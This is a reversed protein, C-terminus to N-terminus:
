NTPNARMANEIASIGDEENRSTYTNISKLDKHGLFDSIQNLPVGLAVLYSVSVDRMYHASFNKIGTKLRLEKFKCQYSIYSGKSRKFPYADDSDIIESLCTKIDDTLICNHWKGVKSMFVKYRNNEYDIDEYKLNLIETARAGNLAMLYFLMVQPDSLEKIAKTAIKYTEIPTKIEEKTAIAGKTKGVKISLTPNNECVGNMIMATFVRSMIQVVKKITTEKYPKDTQKGYSNQKRTISMSYPVQNADTYKIKTIDMSGIFPEIFTYFNRKEVEKNGKATQIYILFADTFTM